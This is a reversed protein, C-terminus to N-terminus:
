KVMKVEEQAHRNYYEDCLKYYLKKLKLIKTAKLYVNYMNKNEYAEVIDEPDINKSTILKINPIADVDGNLLRKQIDKYDNLEKKIEDRLEKSFEM